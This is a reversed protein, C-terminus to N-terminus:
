INQLIDEELTSTCNTVSNWEFVNYQHSTLVPACLLAEAAENAKGPKYKFTLDHMFPAIWRSLLGKSQGKM